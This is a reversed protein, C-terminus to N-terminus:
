GPHSCAGGHRAQGCDHCYTHRLKPVKGCARRLFVGRRGQAHFMQELALRIERHLVDQSPWECPKRVADIEICHNRDLPRVATINYTRGQLVIQDKPTTNATISSHRVTFRATIEAKVQQARYAGRRECQTAQL